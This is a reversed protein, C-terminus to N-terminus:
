KVVRLHGGGGGEEDPPPEDSPAESEFAMGQGNEKAYIAVIAGVPVIVQMPKGGFRGDFSLVDDSVDLGRVAVPSINLVIRNDEVYETPVQVGAIETNVIVYPTCDNDTIWDFLARLLYPRNSKM